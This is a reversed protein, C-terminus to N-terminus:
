EGSEYIVPIYDGFVGTPKADSKFKYIKGNKEISSPIEEDYPFTMVISDTFINKEKKDDRM